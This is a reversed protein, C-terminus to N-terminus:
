AESFEFCGMVTEWNSDMSWTDAPPSTNMIEQWSLESISLRTTDDQDGVSSPSSTQSHNAATATSPPPPLLHRSSRSGEFSAEQQPASFAISAGMSRCTHQMSYAVIFKPPYADSDEQQVTKTAPCGREKRHICRYYSRPYKASNIDKQGYKRWGHGDDYPVSTVTSWTNQTKRRKHGIPMCRGRKESSFERSRQGGVGHCTRCCCSQLRSLASASCKMLNDLIEGALEASSGAPPSSSSLLVARLQRALEHAQNIKDIALRNDCQESNSDLEAGKGM